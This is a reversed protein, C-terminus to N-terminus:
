PLGNKGLQKKSLIRLVGLTNAASKEKGTLLRVMERFLRVQPFKMRLSFYIGAGLCLAILPTSWVIGNLANLANTIFEM